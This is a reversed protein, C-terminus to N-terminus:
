STATVRSAVVTAVPLRLARSAVTSVVSSWSAVVLEVSAVVVTCANRWPALM